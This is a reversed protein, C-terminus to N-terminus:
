EREDQTPQRTDARNAPFTGRRFEFAVGALVGSLAGVVLGLDFPLVGGFLAVTGAAVAAVWTSRSDLATILLAIFTLPIVFGLSLAAPLQAGALVGITTSAQYAVWITIAAGLYFWWRTRPTHENATFEALAVAYTQDTLGYACLWKSGDTFREFYPAISASYMVHRVNIIVATLIVVTIPATQSILDIAALQAAGAFVIVSMAIAQVPPIGASVAAVGTILGFPVVGLLLPGMAQVGALFADRTTMEAEGNHQPPVLFM